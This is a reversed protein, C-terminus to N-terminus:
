FGMMELTPFERDPDNMWRDLVALPGAHHRYPRQQLAGANEDEDEEDEDEDDDETAACAGRGDCDEVHKLCVYCFNM